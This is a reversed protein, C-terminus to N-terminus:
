QFSELFDALEPRFPFPRGLHNPCEREGIRTAVGCKHGVVQRAPAYNGVCQHIASIRQGHPCVVFPPYVLAIHRQLVVGLQATDAVVVVHSLTKMCLVM